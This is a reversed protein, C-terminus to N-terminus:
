CLKKLKQLVNKVYYDVELKGFPAFCPGKAIRRTCKAKPKCTCKKKVKKACKKYPLEPTIPPFTPVVATPWNEVTPELNPSSSPEVDITPVDNITPELNPTLTPSLSPTQTASPEQANAPAMAMIVLAFIVSLIM